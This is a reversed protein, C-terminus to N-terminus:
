DTRASLYVLFTSGHGVRSRVLITGDHRQVISYAIALGLGQAMPKTSFYPDFIKAMNEEPIGVGRDSFSIELYRGPQLPPASDADIHISQLEVTLIGGDPMADIGNRALNDIVQAIQHHDVKAIAESDPLRYAPRVSTAKAAASVSEVILAKLDVPSKVPRGGKAFTILQQTLEKSKRASVEALTAIEYESSDEAFGERLLSLGGLVGTLMNNFEHAIGGALVGLSQLNRSKRKEEDLRKKDSIDTVIAAFQGPKVRYANVTFHKQLSESFYEASFSEGTEVVAACASMWRETFEVLPSDVESARKGVVESRPLGIISEFADNMDLFVYDTPEGAKDNIMEHLAFGSQMNEFLSRYKTESAKRESIEAQLQKHVRAHQIAVAAQELLPRMTAIRRMTDDKEAVTSGTALVALTGQENSVPIFYSVRDDYPENRTAPDFRDDWGEVVLMTGTRAVEALINTSQWGFRMGLRRTDTYPTSELPRAGHRRTLGRVVVLEHPNEEVLAVMLSRFVGASIIEKALIDLVEELDLSSLLAAGIRQYAALLREGTPRIGSPRIEDPNSAMSATM